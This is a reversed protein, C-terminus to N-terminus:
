NSGELKLPLFIFLDPYLDALIHFAPLLSSLLSSGLKLITCLWVRRRDKESM